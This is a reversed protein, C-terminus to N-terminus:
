LKSLADSQLQPPIRKFTIKLKITVKSKSIKTIITNILTAKIVKSSRFIKPYECLRNPGLLGDKIPKKCGMLSATFNNTLFKINGVLPCLKIKQALGITLNTNTRQTQSV